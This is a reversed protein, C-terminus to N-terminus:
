SICHSVEGLKGIGILMGFLSATSLLTLRLRRGLARIPAAPQHGAEKASKPWWGFPRVRQYFENRVEPSTSPTVLATIVTATLSAIVM